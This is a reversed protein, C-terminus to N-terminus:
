ETAESVTSPSSTVRTSMTNAGSLSAATDDASSPGPQAVAPATRAATLVGLAAVASALAFVSLFPDLGARDTAAFVVGSVALALAGGLSDAISLAASNFGRDTDGSAALMAVGTRPYGFGMGGGALVYAAVALLAPLHGAVTLALVATGTLVLGTGWRMASHDTVREGLRAQLQSAAAWTLGVGTLALGATGPTWGWREQLVFVIYAEACFFSASLLGRTGIVAPLGRRGVLSGPPLLRRLSVLAVVLAVVALLALPGHGSGLLELALVATAALVAWALRSRPVPEGTVPRGARRMAPAVLGAALVVMAVAGLFVWRWGLTAAVYAALAPGFLSPLVWAAAFAAFIGPQLVPPFVLGVLVYLCVTLAGGGLGQLVRGAVLVEMTPATGCVLLGLSFLALGAALPMAPGRRDSWGGAAVMGVVASALPAAFAFAYLGVGDLRRAVTPMVTTVATAEFAVLACLAFMGVTTVAYAPSLLRPAPDVRPATSTM